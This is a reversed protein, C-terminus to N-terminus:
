GMLVNKQNKSARLSGSFAGRDIQIFPPGPAEDMGPRSYSFPGQKMLGSECVVLSLGLEHFL